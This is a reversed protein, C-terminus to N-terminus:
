ENFYILQMNKSLCFCAILSRTISISLFHHPTGMNMVPFEFHLLEKIRQLLSAFSDTLVIDNIYMLLYAICNGEKYVFLSPDSTSAVFSIQHLYSAFQEYWVRPAQKLGYLSCQLIYM